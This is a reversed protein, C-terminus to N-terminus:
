NSILISIFNKHFPFDYLNNNLLKFKKEFVKFSYKNNKRIRVWFKMDKNLTILENIFLTAYKQNRLKKEIYIYAIEIRDNLENIVNNAMNENKLSNIIVGNTYDELIIKSGDKIEIYGLYDKEKILYIDFKNILENVHYKFNGRLLFKKIKMKRELIGVLIEINKENVKELKYKILKFM